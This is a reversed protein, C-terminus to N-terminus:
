GFQESIAVYNLSLHKCWASFNDDHFEAIVSIVVLYILYWCCRDLHLIETSSTSNWYCQCALVCHILFFDAAAYSPAVVTIKFDNLSSGSASVLFFLKM